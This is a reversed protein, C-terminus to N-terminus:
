WLGLSRRCSVEARDRLMLLKRTRTAYGPYHRILPKRSPDNPISNWRKDIFSTHETLLPTPAGPGLPDLEFGLLRCIAANEWWRHNILDEQAWINSLLEDTEYGARLIWVGANPMTGEHTTHKVMGMLRDVPLANAIDNCGRVIMLDADLWVVLNYRRLMQRILPIKSWAAPRSHDTLQTTLELTYGHRQAYPKFTTAAVRLLEEQRGYGMSVIAKDTV